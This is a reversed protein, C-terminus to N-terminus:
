MPTLDQNSYSFLVFHFVYKGEVVDLVAYGLVARGLKGSTVVNTTVAGGLSHGVFVLDPLESWAMKKQILLIVEVLDLSLTSLSLDLVEDNASADSLKISTEGHGRADLSLVGAHPLAKCLESAFLAFSLGTSGAGHHTVFLPGKASPPTIYIHHTIIETPRPNDLYFEQKFFDSWPLPDLPRRSASSSIPLFYNSCKQLPSKDLSM